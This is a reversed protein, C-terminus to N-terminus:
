SNVLVKVLLYEMLGLCTVWHLYSFKNNMRVCLWTRWHIYATRSHMERPKQIFHRDSCEVLTSLTMLYPRDLEQLSLMTLTTEVFSVTSKTLLPLFRLKNIHCPIDINVM